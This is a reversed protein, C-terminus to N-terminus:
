YTTSPFSSLKTYFFSFLVNELVMYLFKFIPNFVQIYSWLVGLLFCLCFVRQCM